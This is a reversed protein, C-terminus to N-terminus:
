SSQVLAVAQAPTIFRIGGHWEIARVTRDGTVLCDAKAALACAVPVDDDADQDVVKVAPVDMLVVCAARYGAVLEHASMQRRSLATEFKRRQVIRELEVLLADSTFLKVKGQHAFRLLRECNGGWLFGAVAVNTDLVLRM